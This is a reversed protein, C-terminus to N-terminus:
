KNIPRNYVEQSDVTGDDNRIILECPTHIAAVARAAKTADLKDPHSTLRGIGHERVQWKGGEAVVELKTSQRAM